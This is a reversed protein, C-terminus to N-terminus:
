GDKQALLILKKGFLLDHSLAHDLIERCTQHHEGLSRRFLRTTSLWVPLYLFPALLLASLSYKGTTVELLRFGAQRLIFRLQFYGILHVHGLYTQNWFQTVESLPKHRFSYNGNLLYALRARLNLINPTTILLTGGPKLVRSCEEIFQTHSPHHEIGESCLIAAFSAAAFPLPAIFDVKLCPAGQAKTKGPFLDAVVPDFGAARIGDINVGRGAPLDLCLGKREVNKLLARIDDYAHASRFIKPRKEVTLSEAVLDQM